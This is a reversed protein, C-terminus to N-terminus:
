RRMSGLLRLLNHPLKCANGNEALTSETLPQLGQLLSFISAGVCSSQSVTSALMIWSDKLSSRLLGAVLHLLPIHHQLPARDECLAVMVLGPPAGGGAISPFLSSRALHRLFAGAINGHSMGNGALYLCRCLVLMVLAQLLGSRFKM